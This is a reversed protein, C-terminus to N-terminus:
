AGGPNLPKMMNMGTTWYGASRYLAQATTNSGFVHLGISTMKEAKAVQEILDLAERAHGRGRFEPRVRINYLYGTKIGDATQSAFWIFGVTEGAAADLIEYFRHGPTQQGDPLLREFEKQARSLAQGELWRGSQVNDRAFESIATEAYVPFLDPRMPVLTTM